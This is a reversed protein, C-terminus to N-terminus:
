DHDFEDTSTGERTITVRVHDGYLGHMLDNQSELFQCLELLTTMEEETFTKRAENYSNVVYDYKSNKDKPDLSGNYCVSWGEPYSSDGYDDETPEGLLISIEGMRFKCPDGDNFYPTYQVWAFGYVQPIADFIEKFLATAQQQYEEEVAKKKAELESVLVQM